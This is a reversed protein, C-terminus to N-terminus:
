TITWAPKARLWISSASATRINSSRLLSASRHAVLDLDRDIRERPCRGIFNTSSYRSGAAASCHTAAIRSGDVRGHVIMSTQPPCVCAMTLYPMSSSSGGADVSTCPGPQGTQTVGSSIISWAIASAARGSTM